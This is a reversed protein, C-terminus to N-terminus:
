SAAAQPKARLRLWVWFGVGGVVLAMSVYQSMTLSFIDVFTFLPNDGRLIEILFRTIGYCVMFLAMVEGRQRRFPYYAILLFFIILGDLASYLQTPHVPLSPSPQFEVTQFNPPFVGAYAPPPTAPSAFPGAAAAVYSALTVPDAKQVTLKIPERDAPRALANDLDPANVILDGPRMGAQDANSGVEVSQVVRADFARQQPPRREEALIFGYQTQYGRLVAQRQVPSNAPFQVSWPVHSADVFDGYCCGTMFCGIRGFFLGLAVSPAIIDM